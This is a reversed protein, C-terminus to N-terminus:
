NLMIWAKAVDTKSTSVSKLDIDRFTKYIGVIKEENVLIVLEKRSKCKFPVNKIMNLSLPAGNKIM